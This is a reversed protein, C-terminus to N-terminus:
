EPTGVCDFGSVLQWDSLRLAHGYSARPKHTLRQYMSLAPRRSVTSSGIGKCPSLLPAISKANFGTIPLTLLKAAGSHETHALDLNRHILTTWHYLPCLESSPVSGLNSLLHSSYSQVLLPCICSQSYLVAVIHYKYKISSLRYYITGFSNLWISPPQFYYFSSCWEVDYQVPRSHADHQLLITSRELINQTTITCPLFPFFLYSFLDRSLIM